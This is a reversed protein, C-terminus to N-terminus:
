RVSFTEAIDILSLKQKLHLNSSRQHLKTRYNMSNRNGYKIMLVSRTIIRKWRSNRYRGVKERLASIDDLLQQKRKDRETFADELKIVKERESKWIRYAASWAGGFALGGFIIKAYINDFWVAAFAFPVSFSGSMAAFWHDRFALAFKLIVAKRM